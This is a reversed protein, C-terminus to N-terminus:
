LREALDAGAEDDGYVAFTEPEDVLVYGVLADQEFLVEFGAAGSFDFALAHEHGHDELKGRALEDNVFFDGFFQAGVAEFDLGHARAAYRNM